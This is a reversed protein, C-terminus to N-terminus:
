RHFPSKFEFNTVRYPQTQANNTKEKIKEMHWMYNKVGAVGGKGLSKFFGLVKTIKSPKEVDKAIDTGAVVENYHKEGSVLCHKVENIFLRAVMLQEETYKGSASLDQFRKEMLSTIEKPTYGTKKENIM